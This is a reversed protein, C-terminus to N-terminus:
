SKEVKFKIKNPFYLNRVNNEYTQAYNEDDKFKQVKKKHTIICDDLTLIENSGYEELSINKEGIFYYKRFFTIYNLEFFNKIVPFNNIVKDYLIENHNIDYKSNKDSRKFRLIDGIKKQNLSIFNQYNTFKKFKKMPLLFKQKIGYKKLLCNAYGFCSNIGSIQNKGYILDKSCKRPANKKLTQLKRKTGLFKKVKNKNNIITTKFLNKKPKKEPQIISIMNSSNEKTDKLKNACEPKSENFFLNEFKFERDTEENSKLNSFSFASFYPSYNIEINSLFTTKNYYLSEMM